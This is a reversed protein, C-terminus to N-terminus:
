LVPKKKYKLSIYFVLFMAVSIGIWMSSTLPHALFTTIQYFLTAVIWALVTLYSVAFITWNLNTERYIAGIAAVCPAYILIFLLYAYAAFKDNNFGNQVYGVLKSSEEEEQVEMWGFGIPIALFSDKVGAWFSFDEDYNSDASWNPDRQSYLADMTGIVAEKAFVGTFLGVTAPWNDDTIGMPRFIPTTKQGVWTLVSNSSDNNGFSGDTGISNTFSVLIVILLIVKGAKIMFSKLKNWTHLM